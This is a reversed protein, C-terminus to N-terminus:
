RSRTQWPERPVAAPSEFWKGKSVIKAEPPDASYAPTMIQVGYENFCMWFKGTYNQM